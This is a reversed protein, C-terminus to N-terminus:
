LEALESEQLGGRSPRDGSGRQLLPRAGHHAPRGDQQFGATLDHAGGHQKEPLWLDRLRLALGKLRFGGAKGPM